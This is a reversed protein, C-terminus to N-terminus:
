EFRKRCKECYCVSMNKYLWGEKIVINRIDELANDSILVSIPSIYFSAPCANCKIEINGKIM